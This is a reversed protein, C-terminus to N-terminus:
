SDRIRTLSDIFDPIDSGHHADINGVCGDRFLNDGSFLLDGFRFSLQTNTHGPTFWVDLKVDGVQLVDGENITGDLQIQPMDLSIHQAPIEAYTTIREGVAL